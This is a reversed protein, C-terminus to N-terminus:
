KTYIDTVTLAVVGGTALTYNLTVTSGALSGTGNAVFQTGSVTVTQNNIKLSTATELDANINQGSLSFNSITIKKPDSGSTIVSSFNETGNGGGAITYTETVNYSGEFASAWSTECNTGEYGSPCECIGETCTGGNECTIDKCEDKCSTFTVATLALLGFIIKKM